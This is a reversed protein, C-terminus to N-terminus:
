LQRCLKKSTVRRIHFCCHVCFAFIRGIHVWMKNEFSMVKPWKILVTDVFLWWGLNRLVHFALRDVFFQDILTAMLFICWQNKRINHWKHSHFINLFANFAVPACISLSTFLIMMYFSLNSFLYMSIVNKKIHTQVLSFVTDLEQFVTLTKYLQLFMNESLVNKTVKAIFWHINHQCFDLAM